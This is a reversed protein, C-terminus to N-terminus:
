YYLLFSLTMQKLITSHFFILNQFTDFQLETKNERGKKDYSTIM